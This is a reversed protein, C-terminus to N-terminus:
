EIQTAQTRERRQQNIHEYGPQTEMHYVGSYSKELNISGGLMEHYTPRVLKDKEGRWRAEYSTRMRTAGVMNANWKHKDNMNEEKPHIIWM